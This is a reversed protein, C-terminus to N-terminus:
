TYNEIIRVRAGVTLRTTLGSLAVNGAVSEIRMDLSNPGIYLNGVNGATVSGPGGGKIRVGRMVQSRSQETPSMYVLRRGNARDGGAIWLRGNRAAHIVNERERATGGDVSIDVENGNGSRTIVVNGFLQSIFVENARYQASPKRPKRRFWGM